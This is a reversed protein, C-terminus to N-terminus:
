DPNRRFLSQSLGNGGGFGNPSFAIGVAYSGNLEDYSGIFRLIGGPTKRDLSANLWGTNAPGLDFTHSVSLDYKPTLRYQVGYSVLQEGFMRTERYGLHSTLRDSHTYDFGVGWQEIRDSDFTYTAEGNACLADTTQWLLESYAHSGGLAYEPRWDVYRPIARHPDTSASQDDTRLVVDQKFRLWDVLHRNQGQGRHTQWSNVLGFRAIGGEGLGEVDPDYMPLTGSNMSSAYWGLDVEPRMVYRLGSLDLWDSKLEVLTNVLETALRVGGGGYLRKSDEAGGAQEIDNSWQTYRVVAFPTVDVPGSQLPVQLEQRSDLRNVWATPIGRAAAMARFSTTNPFGFEQLSSFNDIGRVAPADTGVAARVRGVRNESFWNAKGDAVETGLRRFEGELRDTQWGRAELETLSQTFDTTQLSAIAAVSWDEHTHKLDLGTEPPREAPQAFFMEQVTPDSAHAAQVTLETEDSLLHRHEFRLFYRHDDRHDLNDRGAIRDVGNDSPLDYFHFNGFNDPRVYKRDLGLGAGHRGRWDLDATLDEGTDPKEGLLEHVGWRTRVNTGDNTGYGAYISRLPVQWNPLAVYPLWAVPVGGIEPTVNTLTLQAHSQGDDQGPKQPLSSITMRSAGIAFDPEAFANNSVTLGRAEFSDSAHERLLRARVNLPVKIKADVAYMVADLLTARHRAVDFYIRPARVMHDGDGIIANDEMYIGSVKSADGLDGNASADLFIVVNEARAEVLRGEAEWSLRVHGMLLLTDDTDGAGAHAGQKQARQLVLRDASSHIPGGPKGTKGGGPLGPLAPLDLKGDPTQGAAAAPKLATQREQRRTARRDRRAKLEEFAPGEEEAAGDQTKPAEAPPKQGNMRARGAATFDDSPAQAAHTLLPASVQVKGSTIATVWLRPAKAGVSDGALNQANELYLSLHYEAGHAGDKTVVRVLARDATFGHGGIKFGVPTNGGELLLCRAPGEQTEESWAVGKSATLFVPDTLFPGQDLTAVALEPPATKQNGQKDAPAPAQDAGLACPAALAACLLLATPLPRHTAFPPRM